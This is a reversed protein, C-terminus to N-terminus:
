PVTKEHKMAHQRRPDVNNPRNVDDVSLASALVLFTLLTIDVSLKATPISANAVVAMPTAVNDILEDAGGMNPVNVDRMKAVTREGMAVNHLFIDMDRDDGPAIRKTSISLRNRKSDHTPMYKGVIPVSRDFYKRSLWRLTTIFKNPTGRFAMTTVAIKLMSFNPTRPDRPTLVAAKATAVAHPSFNFSNASCFTALLPSDLLLTEQFDLELM